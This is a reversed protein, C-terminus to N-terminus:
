KLMTFCFDGTSERVTLHLPVMCLEEIHCLEPEAQNAQAKQAADVVIGTTGAAREVPVSPFVELVVYIDQDVLEMAACRAICGEGVFGWRNWAWPRALVWGGVQLVFGMYRVSTVSTLAEFSRAAQYYKSFLAKPVQRSCSTLLPSPVYPSVHYMRIHHVYTHSSCMILIPVQEITNFPIWRPVGHSLVETLGWSAIKSSKYDRANKICWFDAIRGLLNIYNSGIAMRKLVQNMAEFRM